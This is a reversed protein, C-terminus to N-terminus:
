FDGEDRSGRQRDSRPKYHMVLSEAIIEIGAERAAAQLAPIKTHMPVAVGREWRRLQGPDVGLRAALEKHQVKLKKEIASVAETLPMRAPRSM